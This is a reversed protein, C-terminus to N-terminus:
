MHKSLFPLKVDKLQGLRDGDLDDLLGPSQNLDDHCNLRERM